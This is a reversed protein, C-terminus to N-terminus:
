VTTVFGPKVKQIVPKVECEVIFLPMTVPDNTDPSKRWETAYDAAEQVTNFLKASQKNDTLLGDPKIFMGDPIGSPGPTSSGPITKTYRCIRLAFM